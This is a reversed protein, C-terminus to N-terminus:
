WLVFPSIYRRLRFFITKILSFTKVLLTLTVWFFFDIVKVILSPASKEYIHRGLILYCANDRKCRRFFLIIVALGALVNCTGRVRFVRLRKLAYTKGVGPRGLVEVVAAKV